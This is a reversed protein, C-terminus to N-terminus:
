FRRGYAKGSSEDIVYVTISHWHEVFYDTGYTETENNDPDDDPKGKLQILYNGNRRLYFYVNQGLAVTSIHDSDMWRGYWHDPVEHSSAFGYAPAENPIRDLTLYLDVEEKLEAMHELSSCTVFFDALGEIGAGSYIKKHFDQERLDKYRISNLTFAPSFTASDPNHMLCVGVLPMQDSKWLEPEPSTGHLFMELAFNRFKAEMTSTDDVLLQRVYKDAIDHTLTANQASLSFLGAGFLLLSLLSCRAPM